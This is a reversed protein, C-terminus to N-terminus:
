CVLSSALPTRAHAPAKYAHADFSFRRGDTKSLRRLDTRENVFVVAAEMDKLIKGIEGGDENGSERGNKPGVWRGNERRQKVTHRHTPTAQNIACLCARDERRSEAEHASRIESRKNKALESQTRSRTECGSRTRIVHERFGGPEGGWVKAIM